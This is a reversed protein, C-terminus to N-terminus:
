VKYAIEWSKLNCIYIGIYAELMLQIRSKNGVWPYYSPNLNLICMSNFFKYQESGCM